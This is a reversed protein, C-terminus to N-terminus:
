QVRNLYLEAMEKSDAHPRLQLNSLIYLPLRHAHRIRCSLVGLGKPLFLVRSLVWFTIKWQQMRILCLEDREKADAHDSPGLIRLIYLALRRAHWNPTSSDGPAKAFPHQLSM